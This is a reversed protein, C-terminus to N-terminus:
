GLGSGGAFFAGTFGRAFFVLDSPSSTSAAWGARPFFLDAASISASSASGLPLSLCGGTFFTRWRTARAGGRDDRMRAAFRTEFSMLADGNNPYALGAELAAAFGAELAPAALGAELAERAPEVFGAERAAEAFGADRADTLGGDVAALFGALLAPELFGTELTHKRNM